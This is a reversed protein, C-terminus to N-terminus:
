GGNNTFERNTSEPDTSEPDTSEPNPFTLDVAGMPSTKDISDPWAAYEAGSERLARDGFENQGQHQRHTYRILGNLAQLSRHCLTRQVALEQQTTYGAVQCDIFAAPTETLSGRAIYYFRIRDLYHFRGYGEAINLTVSTASRRIQHALNYKEHAPLRGATAYAEKFVSLALKYRDLDEFGGTAM